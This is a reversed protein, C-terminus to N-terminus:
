AAGGPLKDSWFEDETKRLDLAEAEVQLFAEEIALVDKYTIAVEYGKSFEFAGSDLVIFETPPM